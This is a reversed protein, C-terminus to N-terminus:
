NKSLVKRVLESIKGGDAKGKLRPMVKGMAKGFDKEDGIEERIIKEADEDSLSPPLYKELIKIESKEKAALDARGGQQYSLVSDNRKKVESRIVEIIQADDLIVDEGKRLSIERAKVASLLMRLVSLMVENKARMADKLDNNIKEKLSSM